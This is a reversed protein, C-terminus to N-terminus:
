ERDSRSTPDLGLRAVHLDDPHVKREAIACRPERADALLMRTLGALRADDKEVIGARELMERRALAIEDERAVRVASLDPEETEPERPREQAEEAVLDGIVAEPRATGIAHVDVATGTVVAERQAEADGGLLADDAHM